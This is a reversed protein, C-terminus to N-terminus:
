FQLPKVALKVGVALSIDPLKALVDDDFALKNIQFKPSLVVVISVEFNALWM